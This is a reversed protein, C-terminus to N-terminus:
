ANEILEKLGNNGADPVYEVEAAEAAVVAQEAAKKEFIKSAKSMGAKELEEQTFYTPLQDAYRDVFDPNPVVKGSAKDYTHPVILDGEHDHQGERIRSSTRTLAGDIRAGGNESLGRCKACGATRRGGRYTYILRHCPKKCNPCTM